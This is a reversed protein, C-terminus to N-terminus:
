REQWKVVADKGHHALGIYIVKGDLEADYQKEKIQEVAKKSIEKLEDKDTNEKLYKFEFVYSPLGNKKAKLIIDARGKEEEKNSIIEYDNKLWACM